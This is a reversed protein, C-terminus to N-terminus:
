GITKLDKEIAIPILTVQTILLGICRWSGSWFGLKSPNVIKAIDNQLFIDRQGLQLM